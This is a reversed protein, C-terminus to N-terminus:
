ERGDEDPLAALYGDLAEVLDTKGGADFKRRMIKATEPKLMGHAMLLGLLTENRWAKKEFAAYGQRIFDVYGEMWPELEPMGTELAVLFGEVAPMRCRKPLAEVPGLYIPKGMRVVFEADESAFYPGDEGRTAYGPVIKVGRRVVVTRVPAGAFAGTLIERVEGPVDYRACRRGPPYAILRRGDRSFVVGDTARYRRSVPSVVFTELAVCGWFVSFDEASDAITVQALARCDNFAWRGINRISQPITLKTLSECAYFANDGIHALGEPLSLEDLAKCGYFADTEIQRLGEPLVATKLRFCWAFAERSICRVGGPIAIEPLSYCGQFAEEGIDTLGEPLTVAILSRCERFTRRGIRTVGEPISAQARAWCECFAADGIRTLSEPFTVRELCKCGRFAEDDIAEVGTELAADTLNDCYWFAMKGVRKVSGPITIDSLATCFMFAGDGIETVGDHIMVGTLGRCGSFAMRGIRNVEPPVVFTGSVNACVVLAHGDRSFVMSGVGKYAGNGASVDIQSLRRCGYFVDDGLDTVSEPIGIRELAECHEFAKRGFRTVGEPIRIEKLALCDRFTEDEIRRVGSPISLRKLAKCAKFAGGGIRMVSHPIEVDTLAACGCFAAEGIEQVGEPIAVETLADRYCFAHTGIHTVGEPIVVNGGSGVYEKLVGGEIIFDASGAM